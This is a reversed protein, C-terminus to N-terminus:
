SLQVETSIGNTKCIVTPSVTAYGTGRKSIITYKESSGNIQHIIIKADGYHDGPDDYIIENGMVVLFDEYIMVFDGASIMMWDDILKKFYDRRERMMELKKDMDREINM